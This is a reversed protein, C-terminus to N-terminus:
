VRLYNLDFDPEWNSGDTSIEWRGHIANGDDSFTGAFRQSFGPSERWLKWVGDALSMEYLRAVGRSDFYHQVYADKEADFGIIAIGDPTDPHEVEWRQILFQKGQLWEFLCTAQLSTGLSSEMTWEGVFVDLRELEPRRAGVGTL